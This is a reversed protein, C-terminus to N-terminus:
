FLGQFLASTQLAAAQCDLSLWGVVPLPAQLAEPDTRRYTLLKPCLMKSRTRYQDTIDAHQACKSVQMANCQIGPMANCQIGPLGRINAYVADHHKRMYIACAPYATGALLKTCKHQGHCCEQEESRFSLQWACEPSRPDQCGSRM